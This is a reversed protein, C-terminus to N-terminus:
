LFIWPWRLAHLPRKIFVSIDQTPCLSQAKTHPLTQASALSWWDCLLQLLVNPLCKTRHAVSSYLRQPIRIITIDRCEIPIIRGSYDVIYWLYQKQKQEGKNWEFCMLKTKVPYILWRKNSLSQIQGYVELFIWIRQGVETITSGTKMLRQEM